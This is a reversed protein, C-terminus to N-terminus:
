QGIKLRADAPMGPKLQRDPNQLDIKIRYVLKVREEFTQVSKPTFEAQSAIFSVKGPFTKGPLSDATVGADQGIKVKGLDTESLYARLWVADIAALSVVPSGPNLYDGPEASKSQIVGSYPALLATYSLQQEAQIRAQKDAEYKARAQAIEEIRPGEVKLSLQEQAAKAQERAADMNGLATKFSTQYTEFEQASVVKREFLDTYRHSDDKAKILQTVTVALNAQARQLDARAAEIEQPRTGNQLQDLYAKSQAEQARARALAQDQDIPDLRALVDGAKISAGEDVLRETLKGAIKFGLRSETVEINGSLTLTGARDNPRLLFYWGALGLALILAALIPLRKKM